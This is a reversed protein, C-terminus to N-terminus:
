DKFKKCKLYKIIERVIDEPRESLLILGKSYPKVKEAQAGYDFCAVPVGMQIAESTTYSFTEPWISPIIVIDIELNEIIDPLNFINYKGTVGEFKINPCEGIVFFSVEGNELGFKLCDEVIFYGKQKNNINGLFAVNVGFHKGVKPKRIAPIDHPVIDIKNELEPYVKLLLERSNNSFIMVRDCYLHLFDRWKQRWRNIDSAGSMLINRIQKNESLNIAPFCKNCLALNLGCYRNNSGFLNFSPCICQFDHLNFQVCIGGNRRKIISILDLIEISNRYGVLSNIVISDFQLKLLVCKLTEFNKLVYREVTESYLTVHIVDNDAISQVRLVNKSEENIKSLINRSYVDTGGGLFHDFWIIRKRCKRREVERVVFEESSIFHKINYSFIKYGIFYYIRKTITTKISLITGCGDIIYKVVFNVGDIYSKRSVKFMKGLVFM